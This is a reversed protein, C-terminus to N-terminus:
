IWSLKRQSGRSVPPRSFINKIRPSKQLLFLTKHSLLILRVRSIAALIVRVYLFGLTARCLCIWLHNENVVEKAPSNAGPLPQQQFTCLKLPCHQHPWNKFCFLAIFCVGFFGTCYTLSKRTNRLPLPLIM